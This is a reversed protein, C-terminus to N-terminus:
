EPVRHPVQTVSRGPGRGALASGLAAAVAEPERAVQAHTFRLTTLGALAHANDRERDRAQQAPTRHYRLGDTEVVLGAGPWHFDVIFGNVRERTLPPPLGAKRVLRLFRRELESDTLRFTREDLLRRLSAVGAVGPRRGVEARLREPDVLHLRDAANVAAELEREGLGAAVEFLTRVPTIVPIGHRRTLDGQPPTRRHACIGAVRIRRSAPVSLHIVGGRAPAIGWLEGATGHSVVAGPGGFLVAAMLRGLAPVEPRGVAYVGRRLPHLRGAAVRRKIAQASLGADLLQAHSVVGHQRRVLGWVGAAGRRQDCLCGM